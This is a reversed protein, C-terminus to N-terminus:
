EQIDKILLDLERQFRNMIQVDIDYRGSTYYFDDAIKNGVMNTHHRAIQIRKKTIADTM